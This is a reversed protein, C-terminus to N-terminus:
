NTHIPTRFVWGVWGQMWGVGWIMRGSGLWVLDRVMYDEFDVVDELVEDALEKGKEELAAVHAALRGQVKSVVEAQGNQRKFPNNPSPTHPQAPTLRRPALGRSVRLVYLCRLFFLRLARRVPYPGHMRTEAFRRRVIHTTPPTLGSPYYDLQRQLAQAAAQGAPGEQVGQGKVREREEQEKKIDEWMEAESGPHEPHPHPSPHTHPTPHPEAHSRSRSRHPLECFLCVFCLCVCVRVYAGYVVVMQGVDGSKFLTVQDVTKHVEVVCPLNVTKHPPIQNRHPSEIAHNTPQNFRVCVCACSRM